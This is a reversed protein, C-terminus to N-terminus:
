DKWDSPNATNFRRIRADVSGKLLFYDPECIRWRCLDIPTLESRAQAYMIQNMGM